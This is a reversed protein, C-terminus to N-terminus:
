LQGDKPCLMVERSAAAYSTDPLEDPGRSGGLVPDPM